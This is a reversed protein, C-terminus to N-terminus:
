DYKVRVWKAVQGLYVFDSFEKKNYSDAERCVETVEVERGDTTLYINTYRRESKGDHFKREFLRKKQEESFFAHRIVQSSM